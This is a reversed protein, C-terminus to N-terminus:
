RRVLWAVLVGGIPVASSAVLLVALRVTAAWSKIADSFVAWRNTPKSPIASSM